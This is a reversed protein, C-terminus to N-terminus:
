FDFLEPLGGVKALAQMDTPVAQLVLKGGGQQAIRMWGLLLAIGASNSYSIASLNVYCTTPMKSRLWSSVQQDLTIVSDFDLAGSLGISDGDFHAAATTSRASQRSM